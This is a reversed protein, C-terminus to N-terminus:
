DEGVLRLYALEAQQRSEGGALALLSAPTGEWRLQGDALVHVHEYSDEVDDIQHTSVVVVLEPPLGLLVERFRHRQAPDLGATPEDLLLVQPTRTLVSALGMRRLQGGSLRNSKTERKDGLGVAAVAQEAAQRAHRRSLGNLWAAYQVSELVTLGPLPAVEQPMFGVLSRLDGQDQELDGFTVLGAIPRLLGSLLKLLTSKGAGNPGLLVTRGQRFSVSLDSIVEARRGYSYRLQHTRLTM